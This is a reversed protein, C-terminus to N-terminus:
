RHRWNHRTFTRLWSDDLYTFTGQGDRWRLVGVSDPEARGGHARLELGNMFCLRTPTFTQQSEALKGHYHGFFSFAPRVIRLVESIDESGSGPMMVDLPSEHSLLVNFSSVALSTTSRGSIRALTPCKKRARPAQGDIGWLGGVRLGGSLTVVAGDRICRVRLYHDVPFDVASRGAARDLRQLQEHDEHNGAIFWLAEPIEPDAFVQDALKSPQVVELVGLELPDDRAHKLTAQDLRAPDPFYGLDGVQLLGDIREGQDRQWALALRFAPLVRGHLDGFVLFAAM